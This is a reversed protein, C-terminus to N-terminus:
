LEIEDLPIYDEIIFNFNRKGRFFSMELNGIIDFGWCEGQIIEDCMKTNNWNFCTLNGVEFTTHRDKMKSINRPAVGKIMFSVRKFKNGTLKDILALEYFMQPNIDNMDIEFDVAKEPSTEATELAKDLAKKFATIEEKVVYIGASTQHGECVALGTSNIIDKLNDVTCSRISGTFYEEDDNTWLVISPKQYQDSIKTAILGTLNRNLAFSICFNDYSDHAIQMKSIEFENEVEAKQDVKITNALKIADRIVKKDDSLIIRAALDNAEFRQCANIIPAISYSVTNSTFEYSGVIKKLGYNNLNELGRKCISRNEMSTMDMVDAIIGVAALDVYDDANELGFADDLAQLFKYCVGAGSLSSNPYGYMESNVTIAHQSAQECKHHDLLIVYTEYDCLEEYLDTENSLSDCAIILDFESLFAIGYQELGHKKGDGIVWRVKFDSFKPAVETLYKYVMSGAMIGDVDTDLIVLIEYDHNIAHILEKVADNMHNLRSYHYENEISPELFDNPVSLRRADLVQKYLSSGTKYKSLTKYTM